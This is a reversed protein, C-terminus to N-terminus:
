IRPLNEKLVNRAIRAMDNAAQSRAYTSVFNQRLQIADHVKEDCRINGIFNFRSYFHRACVKAIKSGLDPDDKPRVQNVVLKFEFRNLKERLLKGMAPDQAEVQRIIKFSQDMSNGSLDLHRVVKNFDALKVTRKVVRFYLAKIFNITNEISTPESTLLCIGQESTLFFDLMNFHTGAGLDMLVYDYDLNQIARIIKSKQATHLNAAETNCHRSGIFFLNPIDTALAAQDLTDVTKDLYAALGTGNGARNMFTHLNPSGLDLDMVLVRKGRRALLNGLNATLMTKGIGGKGGGM